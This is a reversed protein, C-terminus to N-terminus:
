GAGSSSHPSVDYMGRRTVQFDNRNRRQDGAREKMNYICTYNAAAHNAYSNFKVGDKTGDVSVCPLGRFVYKFGARFKSSMWCYVMPNYCCNSMALWHCVAWMPQIYKYSYISPDADGILTITHLPLWCLMYIIVVTIMMKVM